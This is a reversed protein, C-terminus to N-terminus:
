QVGSTTVTPVTLTASDAQLGFTNQLLAIFGWLGVIVAIGILGYIMKDRGKTKAEEDAAIVYSIVGWFFVVIALAILFPIIVNFWAGVECIISGISVGGGSGLGTGVATSCAAGGTGQGAAFVMLPSLGLVVGSLVILKKKM